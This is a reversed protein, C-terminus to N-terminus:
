LQRIYEFLSLKKLEIEIVFVSTKFLYMYYLSCAFYLATLTLFVVMNAKNGFSAFPMHMCNLLSLLFRAILYLTSNAKFSIEYMVHLNM